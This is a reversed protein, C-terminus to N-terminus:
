DLASGGVTARSFAPVIHEGHEGLVPCDVTAPDVDLRRAIADAVRATESLSCGVFRDRPWGTREHLRALVRDVPNTVVPVPCPETARLWAAIRDAVDRNAPWFTSRGGREAGEPPRPVSATVVVCDAAKVAAPGPEVSSVDGAVASTGLAHGAHSRAHRLDTAHGWSADADVDCISGEIGPRDLALSYAATSGVTGGGGVFVVHM